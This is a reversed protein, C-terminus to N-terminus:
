RNDTCTEHVMEEGHKNFNRRLNPVALIGTDTLLRLMDQFWADNVKHQTETLDEYYKKSWSDTLEESM